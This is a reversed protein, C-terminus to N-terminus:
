FVWLSRRYICNPRKPGITRLLLEYPDRYFINNVSFVINGPGPGGEEKVSNGADVLSSSFKIYIFYHGILRQYVLFFQTQWFPINWTHFSDLADFFLNEIWFLINQTLSTIIGLLIPNNINCKIYHTHLLYLSVNLLGTAWHYLAQSIQTNLDIIIKHIRFFHVVAFFRTLMYCRNVM